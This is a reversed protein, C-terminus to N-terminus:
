DRVRGAGKEPYYFRFKFIAGRMAARRKGESVDKQAIKNLRANLNRRMTAVDLANTFKNDAYDGKKVLLGYEDYETYPGNFKGDKFVCEIMLNGNEWYKKFTGENKGDKTTCESKLQGTPYYSKYEGQMVGREDVGYVARITKKDPYYEIITKM